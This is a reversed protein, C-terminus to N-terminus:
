VLPTLDYTDDDYIGTGDLAVDFGANGSDTDFDFVDVGFHFLQDPTPQPEDIFYGGIDFRHNEMDVNETIALNHDSVTTFSVSYNDALDKIVTDLQGGSVTVGSAILDTDEFASTGSNWVFEDIPNEKDIGDYIRISVIGVQDATYQGQVFAIANAESDVALDNAVADTNDVDTVNWATIEMDVLNGSPTVQSIEVTATSAGVMDDFGLYGVDTYATNLDSSSGIGVVINNSVGDTLNYPNMAYAFSLAQGFGIEQNDVALATGSSEANSSNVFHGADGGKVAEGAKAHDEEQVNAGQAFVVLAAGDGNYTDDPNKAGFVGYVQKGSPFGDFDFALSAPPPDQHVTFTYDGPGSQGLDISYYLTDDGDFAATDNGESTGNTFFDIHTGDASIEYTLNSIVSTDVVLQAENFTYNAGTNTDAGVVGNLTIPGTSAGNAFDILSDAIPGIAPEDDVVDIYFLGATLAIQDEDEDMALAVSSLDIRLTDDNAPVPLHDLQQLLTFTYNGNALLQLTFVPTGGPGAKATLTDGVVSYDLAVGQSTLAPLGSTDTSLSWVPPEDAGVDVLANLNGATDVPVSPSTGAPLNAEDVSGSELAGSLEPVDNEITFAVFGAGPQIPDTDADRIDLIGTFDLVGISGGGDLQLLLGDDGSAPDHDLQDFIELTANATSADVQTLTFTFITGASTSATVVDSGFADVDLALTYTIAEGKSLLAPLAADLAAQDLNAINFTGPEDFGAIFASSVVVTSTTTDSLADDINGGPLADEQVEGTDLPENDPADDEIIVADGIDATAQHGDDDGDTVDLVAQLATANGTVDDDDLTGDFHRIPIYQAVNLSGDQNITLALAMDGAAGGVRGVIVDVGNVTEEFYYITSGDLAQFGSDTGSVGDGAALSWTATGAGDTGYDSIDTVVAFESVAWGRLTASEQTALDTFATPASALPQDDDDAALTTDVLETGDQVGATEDHTVTEGTVNIIATPADDRFKVKDGIPMSATDTDTDGDEALINVLLAGDNMTVIEDPDGTDPHDIALWQVLTLVGSSSDISVTFALAGGADGIHGEIVGGNDVLVIEDAPATHGTAFLGTSAGGVSLSWVEPDGEGDNGYDTNDSVVAGGSVAMGIAGAPAGAVDDSGGDIDPTEDHLVTVDTDTIAAALGDDQFRVAAGIDAQATDDDGDGDEADIVAFLVGSAIGLESDHDNADAGHDIAAYQVLTLAGTASNISVTFILTAGDWGEIVGGNDSLLIDGGGTADLGSDVNPASITLSWSHSGAEDAGYDTADAVVPGSSVAQGIAGAPAGSVDDADADNGDTEDHTVSGVVNLGAIPADDDVFLHEGVDTTTQVGESIDIQGIDFKGNLATVWFRNFTEEAPTGPDDTYWKIADGAEFGEVTFSNGANVTVIDGSDTFVIDFSRGDYAEGAQTLDVLVAGTSDEAYMVTKTTPDIIEVYRVTVPIDDMLADEADGSLPDDSGTYDDGYSGTPAGDGTNDIYDIGGLDDGAGDKGASWVDILLKLTNNGQEQSIFIQADTVDLFGTHNMDDIDTYTGQEEGPAFSQGTVFSYVGTNLPEGAKKPVSYMQNNIGGTAGQGGQSTNYSDSASDLSGDDKVVVNLGTVVVAADSDGVSVHLFNGSDLNSFDFSRSGTATVYLLDDFNLTDDPDTDIPHSLAEFWVMEVEASLNNGAVNLYFAGVVTDGVGGTTAIVLTDSVQWLIVPDGDTTTYGTDLNTIMGGSGDSFALSSISETSGLDEITIFAEGNVGDADDEYYNLASNTVGRLNPYAFSVAGLAAIFGGSLGTGVPSTETGDDEITPDTQTGATEDFILKGNIDISAM